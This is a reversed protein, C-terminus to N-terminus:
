EPLHALVFATMLELVLLPQDRHPAHGSHPILRSEVPGRVQREIAEIQRWTGYGDDAGQLLLTPVEISPLFEEINWRRFEPHLWVDNWGRFAGEVNAGHYRTLRERLNTTEYHQTMAAISALGSPEAFVHPAELVLAHLTPRPAGGAYILAISAGDSHGILIADRVATRDLLEGLVAAEDHMYRIPRPLTVPDSDGYGARSYVLAGCGTAEALQRPFGRWM